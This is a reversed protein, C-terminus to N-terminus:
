AEEKPLTPRITDPLLMEALGISGSKALQNALQEAMLGKWMTGATGGGYVTEMEKPLMSKVFTQLIASELKEGLDANDLKKSYRNAMSNLQEVGEQGKAKASEAEAMFRSFSSSAWSPESVPLDKSVVAPAKLARTAARVETPDAQNIVDLVLDSVPQIAM